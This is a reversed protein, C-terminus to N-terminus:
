RETTYTSPPVNGHISCHLVRLTALGSTFESFQFVDETRVRECFGNLGIQRPVAREPGGRVSSGGTIGM